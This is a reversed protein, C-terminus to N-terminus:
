RRLRSLRRENLIRICLECGRKFERCEKPRIEYISCIDNDLAICDGNEKRKMFGREDILHSPINDGEKLEVDLFPDKMKCCEGCGKCSRLNIMEVFLEDALDDPSMKINLLRKIHSMNTRESDL